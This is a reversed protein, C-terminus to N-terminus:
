KPLQEKLKQAFKRDLRKLAEHENYAAERRGQQAYTLGLTYHPTTFSPDLQGAKKLAAIGENTSNSALLCVGAGWWAPAIEPKKKIVQNFFLLGQDCDNVQLSALGENWLDLLTPRHRPSSWIDLTM